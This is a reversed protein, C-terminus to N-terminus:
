DLDKLIKKGKSTIEYYRFHPDKPNKCKALDKIQLDSFVRSISERHKDLDKALFSAIQPKQNLKYLVKKRLQSRAFFIKDEDNLM